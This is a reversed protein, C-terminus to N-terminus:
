YWYRQIEKDWNKKPIIDPGETRYKRSQIIAADPISEIYPM